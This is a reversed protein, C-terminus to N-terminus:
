ILKIKIKANAKTKIILYRLTNRLVFMKKYRQVVFLM